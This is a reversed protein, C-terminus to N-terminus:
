VNFRIMVVDGDNIIYDRGEIRVLGKEKATVYSGCTFLEEAPIVEAKIFGKEFDTHIKGAAKAAGTGRKIIWQRAENSNATFFCILDLLKYSAKILRDLGSEELGADRLFEPRVDEDLQNIEEELAASIEMVSSGESAAAARLERLTNQMSADSPSAEIQKEGINLVYIVPKSTLLQLQERFDVKLSGSTVSRAPKWKELASKISECSELEDAFKKDGSKMLKKTKEIHKEVTELDALMLEINVIDMDRQPDVLGEVHSIDEADFCRLVHVIADVERIHALFRNGLGEGRSAGKVLGAIDVFEIIAHTIKESNYIKALKGIRDDPIRVVGVNPEITCFPYKACVAGANTIANFLTSKGANPLGVIGFKM